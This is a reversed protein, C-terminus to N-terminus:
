KFYFDSYSNKACVNILLILEIICFTRKLVLCCSSLLCFIQLLILVNLLLFILQNQM